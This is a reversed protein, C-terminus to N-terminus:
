RKIRFGTVIASILGDDSSTSTIRAGISNGPTVIIRGRGQTGGVRTLATTGGGLPAEDAYDADSVTPDKVVDLDAIEGSSVRTSIATYEEGGSYDANATFQSRARVSSQAALETFVYAYDSEEPVSIMIILTDGTDTVEKSVRISFTDGSHLKKYAIDDHTAAM